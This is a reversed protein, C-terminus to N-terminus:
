GCAARGCGPSTPPRPWRSRGRWRMWQCRARKRPQGCVPQAARAAALGRRVGQRARLRRHPRGPRTCARRGADCLYLLHVPTLPLGDAHLLQQMFYAQLGEKVCSSVPAPASTPASRSASATSSTGACRSCDAAWRPTAPRATRRGPAWDRGDPRARRGHRARQPRPRQARHRPRAPPLHGPLAGLGPLHRRGGAVEALNENIHSTFWVDEACCSRARGGLMSDTASLSFRPTVAYRLRDRGHWREILKRSEALGTEPSSLLDSRLIRDSLVLGTTINLGRQEAGAFLEEMAGPFHSGFVLASTTGCALLGDLFEGAVEHAYDRDALKSEEPLACRELWDLLPMGLGGMARMQPYHVHTDVFGPMLLGGSLQVVPEDAISRACRRSIAASSSSGTASWCM